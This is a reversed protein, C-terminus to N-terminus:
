RPQPPHTYRRDDRPDPRYANTYGGGPVGRAPPSRPRDYTGPYDPRRYEAREGPVPPRSDYDSPYRAPTAAAPERPRAYPGPGGSYSDERPRKLPPRDDVASSAPRRPSPSRQRVRASAALAVASQPHGHPNPTALPDYRPRDNYPRNEYNGYPRERAPSRAPPYINLQAARRSDHEDRTEWGPAGRSPPPLSSSSSPAAPPLREYREKDAPPYSPRSSKWYPDDEPASWDRRRDGDRPYDFSNNPPYDRPAPPPMRRDRDDYSAPPQHAPAPAPYPRRDRDYPPSYRGNYREPYRTHDVDVRDRDRERDPYTREDPRYSNAGPPPVTSPLRERSNERLAPRYVDHRGGGGTVSTAPSPGRAVSASVSSSRVDTNHTPAGRSDRAVSNTRPPYRGAPEGPTGASTPTNPISDRTLSRGRDDAASLPGTTAMNSISARGTGNSVDPGSMAVDRPDRGAIPRKSGDSGNANVSGPAQSIRQELTPQAASAPSTLANDSTSSPQSSFSPGGGRVPPQNLREQLTPVRTSIRQELTPVRTEELTAQAQSSPMTPPVRAARDEVGNRKAPGLPLMSVPSASSTFSQSPGSAARSDDLSARPEQPPGRPDDAYSMRREPDREDLRQSTPPPYREREREDYRPPFRDREDVTRSNLRDRDDRRRDEDNSDYRRPPYIDPEPRRPDSLRREDRAYRADSNRRERDWTERDREGDRGRADFYRNDRGGTPPPVSGNSPPLAASDRRPIFERPGFEGSYPREAGTRSEPYPPNDDSRSIRAVLPANNNGSSPQISNDGLSDFMAPNKSESPYNSPKLATGSSAGSPYFQSAHTEKIQSANNHGGSVTGAKRMMDKSQLRPPRSAGDELAGPVASQTQQTGSDIEGLYLQALAMPNPATTFLEHQGNKIIQKLNELKELDNDGPINPIPNQPMYQAQQPLNDAFNNYGFGSIGTNFAHPMASGQQALDENNSNNNSAHHHHNTSFVTDSDGTLTTVTRERHQHPNRGKRQKKNQRASM